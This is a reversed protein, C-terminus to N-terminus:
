RYLAAEVKPGDYLDKHDDVSKLFTLLRKTARMLNLKISINKKLYLNTIQAYKDGDTSHEDLDLTPATPETKTANEYNPLYDTEDINSPGPLAWGVKSQTDNSAGKPCEASDDDENDDEQKQADGVNSENNEKKSCISNNDM